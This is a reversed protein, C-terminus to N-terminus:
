VGVSQLKGRPLPVPNKLLWVLYENETFIYNWYIEKIPTKGDADQYIKVQVYYSRWIWKGSNSKLPLWAWRQQIAREPLAPGPTYGSNVGM